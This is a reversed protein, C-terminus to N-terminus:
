NLGNIYTTLKKRDYFNDVDGIFHDPEAGRDIDYFSGNKMISFRRYGSIDFVSGGATCLPHIACSGGSSTQGLLTVKHSAKFANPALNGCSFSVPSELCFLRLGKGDLTDKEDFEGDLNTDITYVANTMAGTLTNKASLDAQGLFTAMVYEATGTDGGTNVSLDMVVNEVPSGERLIQQCAYQMLRIADAQSNDAETPQAFYDIDPSRDTFVDFTIYATNGIEEYAPVGEPYFKERATSYEAIYDMFTSFALGGGFPAVAESFKERDVLYSSAKFQSHLDGLYHFILKFLATQATVPDESLFEAKLGTDSLMDDFNEIDHIEKLGYEHDLVFCLENYSFKALEENWTGSGANVIEKLPDDLGGSVVVCDGNYLLMIGSFSYIVDSITQLPAYYGDGSRVLEIEYPKLDFTVSKGYRDTAMTSQKFLAATNTTLAVMDVLLGEETKFFADFDNFTITNDAFNFDLEYAGRSFVAHDGDTKYEYTPFEEAPLSLDYAEKYFVFIDEVSVYPIIGGDVFYLKAEKKNDASIVYAPVVKEEVSHSKASSAKKTESGGGGYADAKTDGANTNAGSYTQTETEFSGDESGGECGSFGTVMMCALLLAVLRRKM